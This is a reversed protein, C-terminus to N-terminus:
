PKYGKAEIIQWTWSEGKKPEFGLYTTFVSPNFPEVYGSLAYKRSLKKKETKKDKVEISVILNTITWNSGNYISAEFNRPPYISISSSIRATGTIKSLAEYPLPVSKPKKPKESKIGIAKWGSPFLIETRGTIRHVRVPLTTGRSITIHSYRYLTPWVFIGISVLVIIAILILNQKGTM